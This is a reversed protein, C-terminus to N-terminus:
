PQSIRDEPRMQERELMRRIQGRFVPCHDRCGCDCRAGCCTCGWGGPCGLRSMKVEKDVQEKTIM